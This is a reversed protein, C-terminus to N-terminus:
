SFPGDRTEILKILEDLANKAQQHEMPSLGLAAFEDEDLVKWCGDPFIVMDLALDDAYVHGNEIRAPRTINCYWGKLLHDDVDYVAFVNYWRNNYYTEVFRDGKRLLLGHVDIDNRDFIAELTLSHSTEHMIAGEYSLVENGREDLKHVTISKKM